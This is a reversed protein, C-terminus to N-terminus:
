PRDRALTKFRGLVAVTEDGQDTPQRLIVGELSRTDFKALHKVGADTSRGGYLVLGTLQNM